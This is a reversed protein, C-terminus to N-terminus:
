CTASLFFDSTQIKLTVEELDLVCIFLQSQIKKVLSFWEGISFVSLLTPHSYLRFKLKLDGCFHGLQCRSALGYLVQEM